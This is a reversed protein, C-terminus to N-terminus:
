DSLLYHYVASYVDEFSDKEYVDKTYDSYGNSKLLETLARHESRPYWVLTVNIGEDCSEVEAPFGNEVLLNYVFTAEDNYDKVVNGASLM